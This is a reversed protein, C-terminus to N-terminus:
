VFTDTHLSFTGQGDFGGNWDKTGSVLTLRRQESMCYRHETRFALRHHDRGPTLELAPFAPKNPLEFYRVLLLGHFRSSGILDGYNVILIMLDVGHGGDLYFARFALVIKGEPPEPLQPSCIFALHPEEPTRFAVVRPSLVILKKGQKGMKKLLHSGERHCVTVPICLITVRIL